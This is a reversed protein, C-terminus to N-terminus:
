LVVHILYGEKSGNKGSVISKYGTGSTHNVVTNISFTAKHLSGSEVSVDDSIGDFAVTPYIWAEITLSTDIISLSSNAELVAYTDNNGDFNPAINNAFLTTSPFIFGVLGAIFLFTKIKLNLWQQKRMMKKQLLAFYGAGSGTTSPVTTYASSHKFRKLIKSFFIWFFSNLLATDM